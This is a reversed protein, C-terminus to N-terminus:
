RSSERKLLTVVEIGETQPFMDVPQIMAPRYGARQFEKLDRALSEIGCSIYVVRPIKMASVARIFEPTSGSRPPDMCVIDPRSKGGLIESREETKMEALERLFATADEHYFRINRIQNARANSVADRVAAPNLEVGIVQGVSGAMFMGITGTGCYADIVTEKGSLGAAQLALNYLRRTQETNVQYFSSPSIRFTLGLSDDEVFGKGFLVVNRDGLVMSTKANNINQVITVIEPFKKRLAKVFNNKGPFVVDGTVLVVMYGQSGWRILVHRLFGRGRDEDFAQMHFSPMLNRIEEIIADATQDELFCGRVDVVRHSNKEYIGRRIKRDRGETFVSHVKNRYYLPHEAGIIPLIKIGANKVVPNLYKAAREQKMALQRDYPIGIYDCGGCKKRYPCSNQQKGARDDVGSRSATKIEKDQNGPRSVRKDGRGQKKAAASAQKRNKMKSNSISM